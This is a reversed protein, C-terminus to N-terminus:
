MCGTWAVIEGDYFVPSVFQVDSQHVGAIFPDNTVFVDGENVDEFRAIVEQVVRQMVFIPIMYFVGSVATEGTRTYLGFNYDTAHVVPSGSAHVITTAGEENISWLRHSIVEYTIPDITTPSATTASAM